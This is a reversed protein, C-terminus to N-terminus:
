KAKTSSPFEAGAGLSSVASWSPEPTPTVAEVGLSVWRIIWTNQQKGLGESKNFKDQIFYQLIPENGDNVTWNIFITHAGVAKVFDINVQPESRVYLVSTSSSKGQSGVATCRYTGNDKRSTSNLTLESEIFITDIKKTTELKETTLVDGIKEWEIDDIPYGKFKCLLKAPHGANVWEHSMEVAEVPVKVDLMAVQAVEAEQDELSAHCTYNGAEELSVCNIHLMLKAVYDENSLELVLRDNETVNEGSLTWWISSGVPHVRCSLTVNDCLNASTPVLVQLVEVKEKEAETAYNALASTTNLEVVSSPSISTRIETPHIRVTAIVEKTTLKNQEQQRQECVIRSLLSFLESKNRDVSLFGKWNKPILTNPTVRQRVVIGRSIRTESMLSDERYEDFM